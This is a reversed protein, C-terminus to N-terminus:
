EHDMKEQKGMEKEKNTFALEVKVAKAVAKMVAQEADEIAVILSTTKTSFMFDLSRKLADKLTHYYVVRWSLCSTGTKKNVADRGLHLEWGNRDFYLKVYEDIFIWNALNDRRTDKRKTM